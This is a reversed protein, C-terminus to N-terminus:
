KNDMYNSFEENIQEVKYGSYDPVQVDEDTVIDFEHKYEQIRDNISQWGKKLCNKYPCKKISM